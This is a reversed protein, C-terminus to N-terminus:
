NYFNDYKAGNLNNPLKQKLLMWYKTVEYVILFPITLIYILICMYIGLKYGIDYWRSKAVNEWNFDLHNPANRVKVRNNGLYM